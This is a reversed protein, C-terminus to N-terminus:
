DEKITDVERGKDCMWFPDYKYRSCKLAELEENNEEYDFSKLEITEAKCMRDKYYKCTKWNCKM